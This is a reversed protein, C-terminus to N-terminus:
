PIKSHGYPFSENDDVWARKNEFFSLAIKNQKINYIVYNYSQMRRVDRCLETKLLFRNKYDEHTLTKKVVKGVGKATAKKVNDALLFSYCKPALLVVEKCIKGKFEDKICGLKATLSNSYLKHTPEYNSTDLLGNSIMAPYLEKYIDVSGRVVIFLSDTDGGIVNMKCKFQAEYNPFIDYALKYM